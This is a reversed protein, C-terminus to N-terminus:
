DLWFYELLIYRLISILALLYCMQPDKSLHWTLFIPSVTCPIVCYSFLYSLWPIPVRFSQPGNCVFSHSFANRDACRMSDNQVLLVTIRQIPVLFFLWFFYAFVDCFFSWCEVCTVNHIFAFHALAATHVFVLIFWYFLVFICSGVTLFSLFIANVDSCARGILITIHLLQLSGLFCADLCLTSSLIVSNLVTFCSIGDLTM